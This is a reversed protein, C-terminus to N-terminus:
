HFLTTSDLHVDYHQIKFTQKTILNIYINLFPIAAKVNQSYEKKAGRSKSKRHKSDTQVYEKSQYNWRIFTFSKSKDEKV